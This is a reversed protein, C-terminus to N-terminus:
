LKPITMDDALVKITLLSQLNQVHEVVQDQPMAHMFRMTFGTDNATITERLLGTVLQAVNLWNMDTLQELHLLMLLGRMCMLQSSATKKELEFEILDLLESVMHIM